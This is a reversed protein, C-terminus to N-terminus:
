EPALLNISFAHIYCSQQVTDLKGLWFIWRTILQRVPSEHGEEFSDTSHRFLLRRAVFIATKKMVGEIVGYM